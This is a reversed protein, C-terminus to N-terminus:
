GGIHYYPVVCAVCRQFKLNFLFELSAQNTVNMWPCVLNFTVAMCEDWCRFFIDNYLVTKQHHYYLPRGAPALPNCAQVQVSAGDVDMDVQPNAQHFRRLHTIFEHVVPDYEHCLAGKDTAAGSERFTDRIFTQYKLNGNPNKWRFFFIHRLSQWNLRFGINCDGTWFLRPRLM